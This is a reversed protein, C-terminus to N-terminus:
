RWSGTIAPMTVSTSTADQRADGQDPLSSTPGPILMKVQRHLAAVYVDM